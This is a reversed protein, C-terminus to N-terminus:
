GDSSPVPAFFDFSPDADDRYPARTRLNPGVRQGDRWGPVLEDYIATYLESNEM